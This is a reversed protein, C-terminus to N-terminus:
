QNLLSGFLLRFIGGFILDFLGTWIFFGLLIFAAGIIRILSLTGTPGLKDEAWPLRGFAFFIKRSFIVALLGVVVFGLGLIIRMISM